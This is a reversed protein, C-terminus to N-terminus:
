QKRAPSRCDASLAAFRHWYALPWAVVVPALITNRERRTQGTDHFPQRIVHLIVILGDIRRNTQLNLINIISFMRRIRELPTCRTKERSIRVVSGRQELMTKDIRDAYSTFLMCSNIMLEM